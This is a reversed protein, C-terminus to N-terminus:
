KEFLVEEKGLRGDRHSQFSSLMRINGNEEILTRSQEFVLDDDIYQTELQVLNLKEDYGVSKLTTYKVKKKIGICGGMPYPLEKGMCKKYVRVQRDEYDACFNMADAGYFKVIAGGNECKATEIKLSRHMPTNTQSKNVYEGDSLASASFSYFSSLLVLLSMKM